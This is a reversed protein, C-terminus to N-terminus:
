ANDALYSIADTVTNPGTIVLTGTGAGATLVGKVGNAATTTNALSLSTAGSAVTGKIWLSSITVTSPSASSLTAVGKCISPYAVISDTDVIAGSDTYWTQGFTQFNATGGPAITVQTGLPVSSGSAWDAPRTWAGSQALWMGGALAGGTTQKALYVRMGALNIAVGDITQALGSRTVQDVVAVAVCPGLSGALISAGTGAPPPEPMTGGNGMTVRLATTSTFGIFPGPLVVSPESADTVITLTSADENTLITTGVGVIKVWDAAVANSNWSTDQVSVSTYIKRVASGQAQGTKAM